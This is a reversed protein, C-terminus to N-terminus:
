YAISDLAREVTPLTFFIRPLKIHLNMIGDDRLALGLLLLSLLHGSYANISNSLDMAILCICRSSISVEFFSKKSVKISVILINRVGRKLLYHNWNSISM